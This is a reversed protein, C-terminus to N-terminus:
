SPAFARRSSRRGIGSVCWADTAVLFIGDGVAELVNAAQEREAAAARAAAEAAELRRRERQLRANRVASAMQGALGEFLELDAVSYEGCNSMLQVVGVVRGEDKVPVMMAARTGPPGSDPLKRLTGERDVDYYTGGPDRVRKPVDNFILPEGSVIVRSQMGSGRRNVPVPPFIAPDLRNGDSWAYDCRILGDREEYSSIVIGDHQVADAVLEHFRDYIREPEFGEALERAAELLREALRAKRKLEAENVVHLYGVMADQRYLFCALPRM